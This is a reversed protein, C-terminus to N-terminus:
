LAALAADVTPYTDFVDSFGVKALTAAVAPKPNVLKLCGRADSGQGFGRSRITAWGAAPDPPRPGQLALAISHIAVLGSSSVFDTASLDLLLVRTGDRYATEAQAIAELYSSADLDGTMALVAVDPRGPGPTVGFDM